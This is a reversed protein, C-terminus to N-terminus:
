DLIIDTTSLLGLVDMDGLITETQSQSVPFKLYLLDAQEVTLGQNSSSSGWYTINFENVNPNPPSATAM